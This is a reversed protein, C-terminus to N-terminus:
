IINQFHVIHCCINEIIMRCLVTDIFLFVVFMDSSQQRMCLPEPDVRIICHPAYSAAIPIRNSIHLEIYFLSVYLAIRHNGLTHM